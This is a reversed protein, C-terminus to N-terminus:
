DMSINSGTSDNRKMRAMNSPQVDVPPLGTASPSLAVGVSMPDQGNQLVPNAMPPMDRSGNMSPVSEESPPYIMNRSNISAPTSAGPEGEMGEILLPTNDLIEPSELVGTPESKKQPAQKATEIRKHISVPDRAQFGEKAKIDVNLQIAAPLPATVTPAVPKSSKVGMSSNFIQLLIPILFTVLVVLLSKTFGYLVIAVGTVFLTSVFPMKMISYVVTALILGGYLMKPHIGKM